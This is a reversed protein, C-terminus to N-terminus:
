AGAEEEIWVVRYGDIRAARGPPIVLTTTTEEVIAPGRILNGPRLGHWAYRPTEMWTGGFWAPRIDSRAASPDPGELPHEVIRPKVKPVSAILGVEFVEFGAQPFRAGKAYIRAYQEEFAALLRRADEASAIRSVPSTVILDNLQRGYRVMAIHRLRVAEPDAREQRMQELAQEELLEWAQSIRATRAVLEEDDVGPPIVANVARHYHHEYDAAAAGFASFAAAWPFTLVARLPLGDTYGCVHTPGAGGFALLVYDELAFGRLAVLGVVTERMRTDIVDRIGAAAEEVSLDLPEAIRTRIAEVAAERDLRIQGGILGEPNLYGLVLDADTVTPETGGRGYCVPGPVAGASEPGVVLRGTLPDVRAITGGGAGISAIEMMPLSLLFGALVPERDINIFGDTVLGVDFSTGGVDTSVLNRFGYLDGIFRAGVLGGVPGSLATDIARVHRAPALGGASQMVQLDGRFGGRALEAELRAFARLTSPGAYAEIATANARPLERLTPSVEHSCFIPLDVGAEAAEAAAIEKARREHGDRLFSWLFVIVLADIGLGLLERTAARVEEENLPVIERGLSDIRESVGRIRERPVLPELHRHTVPHIRDQRPLTVWSQKGREMLFLQEFGRTILMGPRGGRRTLLANLVVTAGYGVVELEPLFRDQSVGLRARADELSALFGEAIDHPTSPAKGVAFNGDADVVFCDTFTGGVDTYCLAPNAM